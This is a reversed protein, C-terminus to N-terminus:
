VPILPSPDYTQYSVWIEFFQSGVDHNQAFNKLTIDGDLHDFVIIVDNNNSAVELHFAGLEDLPMGPDIDENIRILLNDGFLSDEYTITNPQRSFVTEYDEIVVHFARSDTVEVVVQDIGSGTVINATGGNTQFKIMDAETGGDMFVNGLGGRGFLQDRGADGYLRDAGGNGYIMDAGDLGVLTNARSDGIFNDSYKSGVVNEINLLLDSAAFGGYSRNQTGNSNLVVGVASTSDFYSVTDTGTNGQFTEVANTAKFVDNYGENDINHAALM